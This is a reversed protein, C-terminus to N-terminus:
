KEGKLLSVVEGTVNVGFVIQTGTFGPVEFEGKRNSSFQVFLQVSNLYINASIDIGNYGRREIIQNGIMQSKNGFDGHIARHTFHCNITFDIKNTTIESFDFPRLYLGLRAIFPSADIENITDLKWLNDAILISTSIGFYKHLRGMLYFSISEGALNPNMLSNGFQDLTMMDVMKRGNYSFYLNGSLRHTSLNVGISGSPSTQEEISESSTVLGLLSGGGYLSVSKIKLWEDLVSIDQDGEFSGLSKQVLPQSTLNNSSGLILVTVFLLSILKM